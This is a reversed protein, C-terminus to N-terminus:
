FVVISFVIGFYSQQQQHTGQRGTGGERDPTCRLRKKIVDTFMAQTADKGLPSKRLARFMVEQLKTQQFSQKRGRGAWNLGCAGRNMLVVQLMRCITEDLCRGGMLFLHALLNNKM